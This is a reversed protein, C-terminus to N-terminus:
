SVFEYFIITKPYNQYKVFSKSSIILDDFNGLVVYSIVIKFGSKVGFEDTDFQITMNKTFSRITTPTIIGTLKEVKKTGDYIHLFDHSFHLLLVCQAIQISYYVIFISCKSCKITTTKIYREELDGRISLEIRNRDNAKVIWICDLNNDYHVPYNPSTIDTMNSITVIYPHKKCAEIM